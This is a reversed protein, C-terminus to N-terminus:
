ELTVLMLKDLEMEQQKMEAEIEEPTKRISTDSPGQPTPIPPEYTVHFPVEHLTKPIQVLILVNSM